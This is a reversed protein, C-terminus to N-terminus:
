QPSKGVPVGPAASWVFGVRLFDALLLGESRLLSGLLWGYGKGERCLWNELILEAM